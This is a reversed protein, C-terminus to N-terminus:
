QEEKISFDIIFTMSGAEASGARRIPMKATIPVATDLLQMSGQLMVLNFHGEKFMEFMRDLNDFDIGARYYRM